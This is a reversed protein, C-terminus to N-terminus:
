SKADSLNLHALQYKQKDDWNLKWDVYLINEVFDQLAYADAEEPISKYTGLHSTGRKAQESGSLDGYMSHYWSVAEDREDRSLQLQRGLMMHTMLVDNLCPKGPPATPKRWAKSRDAFTKCYFDDLGGPNASPDWEQRETVGRTFAYRAVRHVQECHRCEHIVTAAYAALVHRIIQHPDDRLKNHHMREKDDIRLQAYVSHALETPLTITWRMPSFSGAAYLAKDAAVPVVDNVVIGPTPVGLESLAVVGADAVLRVAKSAGAQRDRSMYCRRFAEEAAMIAGTFRNAATENALGTLAM